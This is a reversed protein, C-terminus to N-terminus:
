KCQPAGYHNFQMSGIDFIIGILVSVALLVIPDQIHWCTYTFTLNDRDLGHLFLPWTNSGLLKIVEDSSLSAHEFDTGTKKVTPFLIGTSVLYSDKTSTEFLLVLRSEFGPDVPGCCLLSAPQM